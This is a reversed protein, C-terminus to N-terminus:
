EILKNKMVKLCTYAISDKGFELRSDDKSLTAYDFNYPDFAKPNDFYITDALVKYKGKIFCGEYNYEYNKNGYLVLWGGRGAVGDSYAVLKEGNYAMSKSVLGQPFIFSLILVTTLLLIIFNCRWDKLKARIADVINYIILVITALLTIIGMIFIIPYWEGMMDLWYM